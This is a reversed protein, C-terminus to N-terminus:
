REEESKKRLNAKKESNKNMMDCFEKRNLKENGTQDFRRFTAEIQM